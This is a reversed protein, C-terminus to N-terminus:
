SRAQPRPMDNRDGTMSTMFAKWIAEAIQHEQQQLKRNRLVELPYWKGNREKYLIRQYINGTHSIRWTEFIESLRTYAHNLSKAPKDSVESPLIVTTSALGAANIGETVLWLGGLVTEFQRAQRDTPGALRIQVFYPDYRYDSDVTAAGLQKSLEGFPLLLDQLKKTPPSEPKVTLGVLLPAGEELVRHHAKTEVKELFTKESISSRSLELEAQAGDKVPVPGGFILEWAGDVYRVPIRLRRESIRAAM